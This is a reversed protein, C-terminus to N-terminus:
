SRSPFIGQLAICFNLALYPQRNEHPQSGGTTTAANPAMTGTVGGEGWSRPQAGLNGAAPSVANGEDSSVLVTHMHQPLQTQLITVSESGALEGLTYPTGSPATGWHLPVRSRLDPLQFTNVGNGGYTTGLIAFLATNQQISLTQGQCMAWGRPAFNFAFLKLQGLFPTSM